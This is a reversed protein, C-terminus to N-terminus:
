FVRFDLTITFDIQKHISIHGFNTSLIRGKPRFPSEYFGNRAFFACHAAPRKLGPLTQLAKEVDAADYFSTVDDGVVGSIFRAFQDDTHSM